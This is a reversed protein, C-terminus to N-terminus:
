NLNYIAFGMKGTPKDLFFRGYNFEDDGYKLVKENTWGKEKLFADMYDLNGGAEDGTRHESEAFNLIIYSGKPSLTTLEEFMKLVESQKLYMVLGELIWCTPLTAQYGHNPLDKISEKQFDMSVVLRQCKSVEGLEELKKIKANNVKADDVEM